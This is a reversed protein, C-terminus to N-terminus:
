PTYLFFILYTPTYERSMPKNDVQRARAGVIRIYSNIKLAGFLKCSKKRKYERHGM